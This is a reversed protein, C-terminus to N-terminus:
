LNPEGQKRYHVIFLGGRRRYSKELAAPMERVQAESDSVILVPCRGEKVIGALREPSYFRGPGQQEMGAAFEGPNGYIGIDARRLAWSAASAMGSDALVLTEPTLIKRSERVIFDVPTRDVILHPPLLAPFALFVFGVAICFCAFKWGAERAGLAMGVWILFVMAAFVPFYFNEGSRYLLLEAPVRGPLWRNFVQIAFLVALAPIGCFLILRLVRDTERYLKGSQAYRVLGWALLIAFAPFCPLLVPAAGWGTVAFSLLILGTGGLCVAYRLLPTRFAVGCHGRYGAIVGPLFLIWPLMGVIAIPLVLWFSANAVPANMLLFELPEGFNQLSAAVGTPGAIVFAWILPIWPLTFIRKWESQWLLFLVLTALPLVVGPFGGALIAMGMGFGAFTLLGFRRLLLKERCAFFFLVMTLLLFFCFLPGPAAGTGVPFVLGSLLFIVAAIRGVQEEGSRRCLWYLLGASALTALAEPLRAAGPTEGFWKMFLANVWVGLIPTERCSFGNLRPVFWDGSALMERAIELERTEGPHFPPRLWISGLYLLVFCLVALFPYYKKMVESIRRGTRDTGPVNLM